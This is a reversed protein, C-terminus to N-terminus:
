LFCGPLSHLPPPHLPYLPFLSVIDRSWLRYGGLTDFNVRRSTQELHVDVDEKMTLVDLERERVDETWVDVDDVDLEESVDRDNGAM